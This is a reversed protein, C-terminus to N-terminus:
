WREQTDPICPSYLYDHDTPGVLELDRQAANMHWANSIRCDPAAAYEINFVAKGHDLFSVKLAECEDFEWCQENLSWDFAQWLEPAETTNGKLGVSLGLSHALEAIQLNYANNQAKTIPFGSDNSWVETEDPEVADFGKDKCWHQMRDRMLPLLVDVQRIDLWFSDAWGVDPKGIVSEPFRDADSRYAEYVGADIYCIVKVDTGLAHLQAVTAASTLEGDLDYVTVGPRVDRPFVFTESLQWHWHIPQEPTPRWWGAQTSPATAVLPLRTEATPTAAASMGSAASSATADPLGPAPTRSSAGAAEPAASGCSICILLVGIMLIIARM